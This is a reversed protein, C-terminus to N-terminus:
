EARVEVCCHGQAPALDARLCEAASLGDVVGAIFAHNMGCILAPSSAALPHFPCNRLRIAGRTAVPEFGHRELLGATIGLAREAGLRGPRLREREAAGVAAGRERAVRRVADSAREGATETEVAEALIEALLQPERPPLSVSVDHESPEYVKPSRGVGHKGPEDIRASLLDADVLRDLHFAALKVSVGVAEAAEARTVAAGARCVFSYLASRVSDDLVAVRAIAAREM